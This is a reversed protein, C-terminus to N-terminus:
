GQSRWPSISMEIIDNELLQKIEKEIIKKEEKSYKRTPMMIPTTNENIGPFLTPFKVNSGVLSLKRKNPSRFSLIQQTGSFAM